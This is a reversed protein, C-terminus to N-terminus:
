VDSPNGCDVRQDRLVEHTGDRRYTPHARVADDATHARLDSLGNDVKSDIEGVDTGLCSKGVRQRQCQFATTKDDSPATRRSSHRASEWESSPRSDAPTW